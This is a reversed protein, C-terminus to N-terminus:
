KFNTPHSHINEPRLYLSQVIHRQTVGVGLESTYKLFPSILKVKPFLLVKRFSLESQKETNKLVIRTCIKFLYASNLSKM